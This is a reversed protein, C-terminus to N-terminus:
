RTTWLASIPFAWTRDDLPAASDGGHLIVGRAFREGVALRLGALHRTADLGLRHGPKVEIGVVGGDDAELLLDVEAGDHDRYHHLTASVASWGLQRRLELAVFTETM